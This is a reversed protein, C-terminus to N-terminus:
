RFRNRRARWSKESARTRGLEVQFGGVPQKTEADIYVVEIVMAEEATPLIREELTELRRVVNRNVM